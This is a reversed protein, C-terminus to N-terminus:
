QGSGEQRHGSTTRGSQHRGFDLLVDVDLVPLIENHQHFVGATLPARRRDVNPPEHIRASESLTVVDGIRDVILAFQEGHREICIALADEYNQQDPMGLILRLSTAVNIKGRLNILGVIEPPAMPVPTIKGVRFITQVADIPLGFAEGGCMVTFVKAEGDPASSAAASKLASSTM